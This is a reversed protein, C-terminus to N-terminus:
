FPHAGVVGAVVLELHAERVGYSAGTPAAQLGHLLEPLVRGPAAKGIRVLAAAAANRVGSDSDALSAVLATLVQSDEKEVMTLSLSSLRAASAFLFSNRFPDDSGSRTTMMFRAHERTPSEPTRTRRTRARETSHWVREAARQPRRPMLLVVM